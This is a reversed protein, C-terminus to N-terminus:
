YLKHTLPRDVGAYPLIPNLSFHHDPVEEYKSFTKWGGSTGSPSWLPIKMSSSKAQPKWVYIISTNTFQLGMYARLLQHHFKSPPPTPPTPVRTQILPYKLLIVSHCKAEPGWKYFKCSGVTPSTPLLPEQPCSAWGAPPGLGWNPLRATFCKICSPESLMCIKIKVLSMPITAPGM